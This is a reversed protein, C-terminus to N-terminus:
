AESKTDLVKRVTKALEQKNLPKMLFERIGAAKVTEQDVNESHGTSLIIPIDPRVKLLEEALRMGTLESMTQDTIVLDFRGPDESFLKLAETSKTVATVTYGLRELMSEGLEVLIEEDDVFLVHEKGRPVETSHMADSAQDKAMKPFLVRFTTGEGAKSEFTISGKFSKVIGYVVALGMGTGRGLEKTTFFPEFIRKMTVEDMGTGTDQVALQLYPGPPLEPDSEIIADALTINLKGGNVRMADAANTCLNMIIQQLGTENARVTDSTATMNVDIEITTPISARLLQATERVLSILSIPKITMSPRAASFALMQKILDRARFSSNLIHRLNKELLTGQEVDDLSMEAFGLIAALINNFDHAIGGALTGLAEMKQAQRLQDELKRQETIEQVVGTIGMIQGAADKLPSYTNLFTRMIGPLDPTEGSFEVNRVPEGTEIVQRIIPEIEDALRAPLIERVNRGIHESPPVGNWQALRENIRLYRLDTDLAYLGVPSADYYADIERKQRLATEQSQKLEEQVRIQDTLDTAVACFANQQDLTLPRVSLLIPVGKGSGTKLLFEGRCAEQGCERLMAELSQGNRPVVLDHLSAGIIQNLPM